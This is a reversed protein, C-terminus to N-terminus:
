KPIIQAAMTQWVIRNGRCEFSDTAFPVHVMPSEASWVVYAKSGDVIQQRIDFATKGAPFLPLVSAFFAAIEDTGRVIGNPTWIVSTNNYDKMVAQLNNSIIAQLHQGIIAETTFHATPHM